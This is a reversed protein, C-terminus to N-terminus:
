IPAKEKRFFLCLLAHTQNEQLGWYLVHKHMYAHIIHILIGTNLDADSEIVGTKSISMGVQNSSMKYKIIKFCSQILV